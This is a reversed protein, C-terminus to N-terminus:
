HHSQDILAVGSQPNVNQAHHCYLWIMMANQCHSLGLLQFPSKCFCGMQKAKCFNLAPKISDGEVKQVYHVNNPQLLHTSEKLKTTLASSHLL